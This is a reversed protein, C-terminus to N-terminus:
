VTDLIEVRKLNEKYLQELRRRNARPGFSARKLLDNFFESNRKEMSIFSQCVSKFDSVDLTDTKTLYITEDMSDIPALVGTDMDSYVNDNYLTELMKIRKKIQSQFEYFWNSLKSEAMLDQGQRYKELAQNELKIAFKLADGFNKIEM